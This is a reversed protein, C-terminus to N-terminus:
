KKVCGPIYADCVSTSTIAWTMKSTDTTVDPTLTVAGASVGGLPITMTIVGNAVSNVGVTGAASSAAPVGNAGGDCTDLSSNTQFCIAVATKYPAAEALVATAKAKATYNQYAPLAVAALIAVIAVVIMLEILTFGSQKKM